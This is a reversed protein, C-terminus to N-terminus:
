RRLGLVSQFVVWGAVLRAATQYSLEPDQSITAAPLPVRPGPDSVVREGVRPVLGARVKATAPSIRQLVGARLPTAQAAALAALGGLALSPLCWLARRRDTGCAVIVELFALVAIAIFLLFEAWEGEAGYAWPALCALTVLIWESATQSYRV